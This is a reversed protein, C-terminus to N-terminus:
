SVKNSLSGQVALEDARKNGYWIKYEPSNAVGNFTTHAKCHILQVNYKLYLCRIEKILEVNKVKVKKGSKNKRMWGNKAWTNSWKTISDILYKSDTYIKIFDEFDFNDRNSIVLLARRVAELECKNNTIHGSSSVLCESINENSDDSFFVGIGGLAKSSGNDFCSGDTFAIHTERVKVDEQELPVTEEFDTLSPKTREFYNLISM